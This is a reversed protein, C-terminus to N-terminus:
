ITQADEKGREARLANLKAILDDRWQGVMSTIAATGAVSFEETRVLEIMELYTTQQQQQQERTTRLFSSLKDDALDGAMDDLHDLIAQGTDRVLEALACKRDQAAFLEEDVAAGAANAEDEGRVAEGYDHDAYEVDGEDFMAAAGVANAEDEGGVAKGYDHVAYEVDGEEDFRQQEDSYGEDGFMYEEDEYVEDEVMHEAVAYGEDFIHEDLSDDDAVDDGDDTYEPLHDWKSYDILGVKRVQPQDRPQPQHKQQQPHQQRAPPPPTQREREVLETHCSAWYVTRWWREWEGLMQQLLENRERLAAIEHKDRWKASQRRMERIKWPTVQVLRGRASTNTRNEDM